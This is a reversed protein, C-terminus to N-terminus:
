GHRRRRAMGLGMLGLGFLALAAPEPVDVPPPTEPNYRKVITFHSVGAATSAGPLDFPPDTLPTNWDGSSAEENLLFAILNTNGGKFVIMYDYAEFDVGALAWTGSSASPELDFKDVNITWDSYGFFDAANINGLNAVNGPDANDLYQCASAASGGAYFVKSTGDATHAAPCAMLAANAPASLAALAGVAAATLLITKM